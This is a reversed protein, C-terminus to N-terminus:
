LPIGVQVKQPTNRKRVFQLADNLISPGPELLLNKNMGHGCSAIALSKHLNLQLRCIPSDPVVRWPSEASRLANIM